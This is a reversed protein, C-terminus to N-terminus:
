HWYKSIVSNPKLIMLDYGYKTDFKKKQYYFHYTGYGFAAYFGAYTAAKNFTLGATNGGNSIGAALFVITEIVLGTAFVLGAADNLLNKQKLYFYRISKIPIESLDNTMNVYVYQKNMIVVTTDKIETIYGQVVKKNNTIIKVEDGTHVFVNKRGGNKHLLIFNQSFLSQTQILAIVIFFLLSIFLRRNM